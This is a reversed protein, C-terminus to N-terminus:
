IIELASLAALLQQMDAPLPATLICPRATRPHTFALRACHLAQRAILEGPLPRQDECWALFEADSMTYLKDGVIPHGIAHLHARLQHTRGTLPHLELLAYDANFTQRTQYHTTAPKGGSAAGYRHVGPLSDLRALPYDITGAGPQPRGHVLALYTKGVAQQQFLQQMQRATEGDRACLIVGSTDKDLRNVLTAEPFPPHHRYRLHYILNAQAYRRKDHVRLNPPKNIGLLWEDEHILTYQFNAAPPTTPPLDCAVVDGQTVITDPTCVRGNCTVRGHRVLEDWEAASRYTFRGALYAVIPVQKYAATVKSSVQM